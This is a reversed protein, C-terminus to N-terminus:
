PKGNKKTIGFTAGSDAILLMRHKRSKRSKARKKTDCTKAYRMIRHGFILIGTSSVTYLSAIIVGFDLGLLSYAPRHVGGLQPMLGSSHDTDNNPGAPPADAVHGVGGASPAANARGICALFIMFILTASYPKIAENCAAVRSTLAKILAAGHQGAATTDSHNCVVLISYGTADLWADDRRSDSILLGLAAAGCAVAIFRSGTVLQVGTYAGFFIVFLALMATATLGLGSESSPNGAEIDPKSNHEPPLPKPLPSIPPKPLPSIPPKPLPSPKPAATFNSNLSNPGGGPRTRAAALELMRSPPCTDAMRVTKRSAPSPAPLPATVAATAPPPPSSLGATTAANTLAREFAARSEFKSPTVWWTDTHVDWSAGLSDALRRFDRPVTVIIADRPPKTHVTLRSGAVTGEAQGGHTTSATTALQPQHPSATTITQTPQLPTKHMCALEPSGIPQYSALTRNIEDGRARAGAEDQDFYEIMTETDHNFAESSIIAEIDHERREDDINVWTIMTSRNLQSYAVVWQHQDPKFDCDYDFDYDIGETETGVFAFDTGKTVTYNSLTDDVSGTNFDDAACMGCFNDCSDDDIDRLTNMWAVASVDKDNKDGKGAAKQAKREDYARQMGPTPPKLPKFPKGAKEANKKKTESYYSRLEENEWVVPSVPDENDEHAYCDRVEGKRPGLRIIHPCNKCSKKKEETAPPPANTASLATSQGAGHIALGCSTALYSFEEARATCGTPLQLTPTEADAKEFRYVIRKCRSIIHDVDFIGEKTVEDEIRSKEEDSVPMRHVIYLAADEPEYKRPVNPMIKEAWTHVLDGFAKATCGAPLEANKIMEDAIEYHRKDQPTRGVEDFPHLLAHMLMNWARTGDNYSVGHEQVRCLKMMKTVLHQHHKEAAATVMEFGINQADAIIALRKHYNMMNERRLKANHQKYKLALDPEATAIVTDHIFDEETYDIIQRVRLPPDGRMVEELRAAAFRTECHQQFRLVEDMKADAPAHDLVPRKHVVDHANATDDTM